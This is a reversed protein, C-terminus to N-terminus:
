INLLVILFIAPYHINRQTCCILGYEGTSVEMLCLKWVQNSLWHVIKQCSCQKVKLDVIDLWKTKSHVCYLCTKLSVHMILKWSCSGKQFSFVNQFILCRLRVVCVNKQFLIDNSHYMNNIQKWDLDNLSTLSPVTLIQIPDVIVSWRLWRSKLLCRRPSM